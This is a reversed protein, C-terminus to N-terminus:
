SLDGIDRVQLSYAESKVIYFQGDDCTWADKSRAVEEECPTFFGIEEPLKGADSFHLTARRKMHKRDVKGLYLWSEQKFVDTHECVCLFDKKNVIFSQEEQERYCGDLIKFGIKQDKLFNNTEFMDYSSFIVYEEDWVQRNDSM